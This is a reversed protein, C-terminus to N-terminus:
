LNHMYIMTIIHFKSQNMNHVLADISTVMWMYLIMAM